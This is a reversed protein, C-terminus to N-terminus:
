RIRRSLVDFVGSPVYGLARNLALMDANREDNSTYVVKVDNDHAWRITALKALKALGRHRFAPLTGTMANFGLHRDHEVTLWAYSVPLDGALIVFSGDLDLMPDQFRYCSFERFRVDVFASEAPADRLTDAYLTHMAEPRDTFERLPVLRFGHRAAQRERKPLDSLVASAPDLAWVQARQHRRFGRVRLFRRTERAPGYVSTELRHPTLTLLHSVATEYLRAGLGQRRVDPHVGLFLSGVRIPGTWMHLGASAWGVMRGDQMAVWWRESIRSPACGQYQLLRAATMPEYPLLIHLLAAAGSADAVRFRRIKVNRAM